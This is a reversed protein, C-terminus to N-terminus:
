RVSETKLWELAKQEDLFVKITIQPNDSLTQFMRAFGLQLENAVVLASKFHNPFKKAVRIKALDFVSNFDGDFSKVKRLDVLRNPLISYKNDILNMEKALPFIDRVTLLDPFIQFLLGDKNEYKCIM